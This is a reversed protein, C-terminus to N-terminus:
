LITLLQDTAHHSINENVWSTLDESLSVRIAIESNDESDSSIVIHQDIANWLESERQSVQNSDSDNRTYKDDYKACQMQICCKIYMIKVCCQALSPTDSRLHIDVGFVSYRDLILQISIKFSCIIPNSLSDINSMLFEKGSKSMTWSILLLAVRVQESTKVLACTVTFTFPCTQSTLNWVKKKTCKTKYGELCPHTNILVFKAIKM